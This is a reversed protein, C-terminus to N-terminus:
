LNSLLCTWLMCVCLVPTSLQWGLFIYCFLTAGSAIDVLMHFLVGLSNAPFRFRGAVVNM